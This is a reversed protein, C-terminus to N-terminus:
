ARACRRLVGSETPLTRWTPRASGFLYQNMCDKSGQPLNRADERRMWCLNFDDGRSEAELVCQEILWRNQALLDNKAKRVTDRRIAPPSPITRKTVTRVNM